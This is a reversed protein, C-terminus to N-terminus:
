ILPKNTYYTKKGRSYEQISTKTIFVTSIYYSQAKCLKDPYHIFLM